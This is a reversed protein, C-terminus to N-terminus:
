PELFRQFSDSVEAAERKLRKEVAELDKIRLKYETLGPIDEPTESMRGCLIDLINKSNYTSHSTEKNFEIIKKYEAHKGVVDGIHKNLGLAADYYYHMRKCGEAIM